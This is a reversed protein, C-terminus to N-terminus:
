AHGGGSIIFIPNQARLMHLGGVDEVQTVGLQVIDMAMARATFAQRAQYLTELTVANVVMRIAPNNAHLAAIIEALKGGSGGIFAADLRPLAALEQPAAGAIVRVNGLQFAHCNAKILQVAETNREIAYVRGAYASLAIEVSVSGSGAGIDCCISNPSLALKSLSVARVEAKTMPVNGRRFESDPIGVRLRSDPHPNDILLVAPPRIDTKTLEAPTLTRIRENAQALNEAVTITLQELGASLLQEALQRINDGTLAFSAAHRRVTDALNGERGHCSLLAVEQWPRRLRAFLYNLSSVGPLWVVEHANLAVSLGTAASYFGTDGSVLLAFSEATSREVLEVVQEPQYAFHKIQPLGAFPALVPKAGLLVEAQEIAQWGEGTVTDRGMGVGIIAIRKM